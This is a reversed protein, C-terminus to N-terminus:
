TMSEDPALNQRQQETRYNHWNYLSTAVGAGALVLRALERDRPLLTAAYVMFPGLLFVDVLRVAQTKQTPESLM